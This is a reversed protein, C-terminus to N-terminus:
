YTGFNFAAEFMAAINEPPVEATINHINAAIYGGGPKLCNMNKRVDDHVQMPTGFPLTHQSDCLGGWFAISKGYRRKLSCPEMDRASVQVPNLSDFGLDIFHPIFAPVSGCSHFNIKVHPAVRKLHQVIKRDVPKVHGVYFAPNILPGDQSALDSNICVVDIFKGVKGLFTSIYDMWYRALEKMAADLLEPMLRVLKMARTFGFLFTCCEFTNSVATSCVTYSTEEHLPRALEDLDKFPTADKGSPWSFREVDQVTTADELPHIVPDYYLIDQLDKSSDNGWFVGFQDYQGVFGQEYQPAMNEYPIYNSLPRIWRTDVHFRELIADSPKALQQTFHSLMITEDTMELFKLLRAYAKVHIGTQNGGLDIPVRDPQRRDLAALVRTRSDM